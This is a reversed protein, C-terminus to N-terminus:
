TGPIITFGLVDVLNFGYYLYVSGNGVFEEPQHITFAYSFEGKPDRLTLKEEYQRSKPLRIVIRLQSDPRTGEYSFRLMLTLRSHYEAANIKRSDGLFVWGNDKKVAPGLQLDYIAVRGAIEWSLERGKKAAFSGSVLVFLILLSIALGVVFRKGHIPSTEVRVSMSKM